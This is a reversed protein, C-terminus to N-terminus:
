LIRGQMVSTGIYLRIRNLLIPSSAGLDRNKAQLPSVSHFANKLRIPLDVIANKVPWDHGMSLDQYVPPAWSFPNQLQRVSPSLWFNLEVQPTSASIDKLSTIELWAVPPFSPYNSILDWIKKSLKRLM